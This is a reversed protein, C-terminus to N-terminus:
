AGPRGTARRERGPRVSPPRGGCALTPEVYPLPELDVSRQAQGKAAVRIEGDGVTDADVTRPHDVNTVGCGNLCERGAYVVGVAVGPIGYAAMGAEVKADLEAFLRTADTCAVPRASRAATAAIAPRGVSV